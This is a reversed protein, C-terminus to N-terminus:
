FSFTKFSLSLKVVPYLYYQSTQSEYLEKQGNQPDSTPAIIGTSELTFKPGGMYYCGIEFALGVTKSGLTKGFGIGLYPSVKLGPELTVNFDGIKEKPITIDGWPMDNNPSGVADVKFNNIGAGASVFLSKALYYDYLATISGTEGNIKATFSIDYEEFDYDYPGLKLQDYGIRVSMKNHFKFVLDGGYGMTSGKLALGIGKDQANVASLFFTILMTLVTIKVTTKKM